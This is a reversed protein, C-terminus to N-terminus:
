LGRMFERYADPDIQESVLGIRSEIEVRQPLVKDPAEFEPEKNIGYFSDLIQQWTGPSMGLEEGDIDTKM